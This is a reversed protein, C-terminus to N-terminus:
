YGLPEVLSDLIWSHLDPKVIKLKIIKSVSTPQKRSLASVKSQAVFVIMIKQRINM